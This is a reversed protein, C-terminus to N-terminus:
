FHTLLQLSISVFVSFFAHFLSMLLSSNSNSRSPMSSFSKRPVNPASRLSTQSQSLLSSSSKLYWYRVLTSIEYCASSSPDFSSSSSSSFFASVYAFNLNESTSCFKSEMMLKTSDLGCYFFFYRISLSSLCATAYSCYLVSVCVLTLENKFMTEIISLIYAVWFIKIVSTLSVHKYKIVHLRLELIFNCQRFLCMPTWKIVEKFMNETASRYNPSIQVLTWEWNTQILTNKSYM